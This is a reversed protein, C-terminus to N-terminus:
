YIIAVVVREVDSFRVRWPDPSPNNDGQFVAYWGDEDQGTEIIRHIIIEGQPSEYSAIDGVKLEAPSQPVLEIANAGDDIVPDMSNTDTFSAWEADKIDLVIRDDYVHIQSEGVRDGPSDLENDQEGLLTTIIPQESIKVGTSVFSHALFGLLFISAILVFTLMRM